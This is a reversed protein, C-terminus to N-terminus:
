KCFHITGGLQKNFLELREERQASQQRDSTNLSLLFSEIRRLSGESHQTDREPRSLEREAPQFYVMKTLTGGIDMGFYRGFDYSKSTLIHMHLRRLKRKRAILLGAVCSAGFLFVRTWFVDHRHMPRM